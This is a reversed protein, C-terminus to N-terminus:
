KVVAVLEPPRYISRSRAPGNPAFLKDMMWRDHEMRIKQGDFAEGPRQVDKTNLNRPYVAEGDLGAEDFDIFKIGQSPDSPFVLINSARIDGHVYKSAHLLNVAKEIAQKFPERKEPEIDALLGWPEKMEEMIVVIWGGPLDTHGYLTPACRARSLAQHAEVSYQQVFKIFLSRKQTDEASFLLVDRYLRKIYKFEIDSGSEIDKYENPYPFLSLPLPDSSPVPLKSYYVSLAELSKKLAGLCRALRTWNENDHWDGDLPFWPTLVM